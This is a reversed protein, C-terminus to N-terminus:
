LTPIKIFDEVDQLQVQKLQNIKKKLDDSQQEVDVLMLNSPSADDLKDMRSFHINDLLDDTKGWKRACVKQGSKIMDKLEHYANEWSDISIRIRKFKMGEFNPIDLPCDNIHEKWEIVHEM